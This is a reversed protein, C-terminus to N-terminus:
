VSLGGDDNVITRVATLTIVGNGFSGGVPNTLDLVFTKDPEPTM